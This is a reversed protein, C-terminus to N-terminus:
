EKNADMKSMYMSPRRGTRAYRRLGPEMGKEIRRQLEDPEPRNGPRINLCDEVLRCLEQSYHPTRYNPILSFGNRRVRDEKNEWDQLLQELTKNEPELEMAGYICAAMQFTM